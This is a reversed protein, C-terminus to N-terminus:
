EVVTWREYFGYALAALAGFIVLMAVNLGLTYVSGLLGGPLQNPAVDRAVSLGGTPIPSLVYELIVGTWVVGFLIMGVILGTTLATTHTEDPCSVDFYGVSTEVWGEWEECARGLSVTGTFMSRDLPFEKAHTMFLHFTVGVLMTVAVIAHVDRTILFLPAPSAGNVTGAYLVLGTLIMVTTEAVIIWIEAKQLFTYKGSAPQERRGALYKLHEVAERVDSRGPLVNSLTSVGGIAGLVGYILYFVVTALLVAGAAVHLLVVNDYGLITMLWAFSEHFTIPLGTVWLVLISAALLGHVYVQADNFRTLQSEASATAM